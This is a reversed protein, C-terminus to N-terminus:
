KSRDNDVSVNMLMGLRSSHHLRILSGLSRARHDLYNWIVASHRLRALLLPSHWGDQSTSLLNISGTFDCSLQEKVSKKGLACPSLARSIHKRTGSVTASPPRNRSTKNHWSKTGSGCVPILTSLNCTALEIATVFLRSARTSISVLKLLVAHTSKFLIGGNILM